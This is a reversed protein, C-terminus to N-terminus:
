AFGIRIVPEKHKMPAEFDDATLTTLEKKTLKDIDASLLRSAQKMCAKEFMNRMFRGNGFDLEKKETELIPLLKEKVTKEIHM